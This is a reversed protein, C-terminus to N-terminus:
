PTESTAEIGSTTRSRPLWSAGIAGYAIPPVLASSSDKRWLWKRVNQLLWM